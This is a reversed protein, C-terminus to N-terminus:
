SPGREPAPEAAWISEMPTFLLEEQFGRFKNRPTTMERWATSKLRRRQHRARIGRKQHTAVWDGKLAPGQWPPKLGLGDVSGAHLRDVGGPNRLLANSSCASPVNVAIPEDPLTDIIILLRVNWM